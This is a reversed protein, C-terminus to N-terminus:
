RYRSVVSCFSALFRRRAAHIVLLSPTYGADSGSQIDRNNGKEPNKFSVRSLRHDGHISTLTPNKETVGKQRIIDSRAFLSFSLALRKGEFDSYCHDLDCINSRQFGAFEV